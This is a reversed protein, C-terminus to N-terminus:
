QSGVKYPSNLFLPNITNTMPTMPAMTTMTTMPSTAGRMAYNMGDNTLSKQKAAISLDLASDGAYSGHYGSYSSPPPYVFPAAGTYSGIYPTAASYICIVYLYLTVLLMM